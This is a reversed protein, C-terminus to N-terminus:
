SIMENTYLSVTWGLNDPDLRLEAFHRLVRDIDFKSIIWVDYM